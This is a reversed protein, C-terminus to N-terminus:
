VGSRASMSYVTRFRVFDGLGSRLRRSEPEGFNFVRDDRACDLSRVSEAETVGVGGDFDERYFVAAFGIASSFTGCIPVSLGEEFKIDACYFLGARALPTKSRASLQRSIASLKKTCAKWGVVTDAAWRLM